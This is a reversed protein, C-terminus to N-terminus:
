VDDPLTYSTTNGTRIPPSTMSTILCYKTTTTSPLEVAVILSSLFHISVLFHFVVFPIEIGNRLTGGGRRSGERGVERLATKVTM